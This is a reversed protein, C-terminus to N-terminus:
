MKIISRASHRYGPVFCLEKQKRSVSSVFTSDVDVTRDKFALAKKLEPM